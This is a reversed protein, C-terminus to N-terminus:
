KPLLGYLKLVDYRSIIGVLKGQEDVIPIPNVKHHDKFTRVVEEITINQSVVLPDRNMVDQVRLTKLRQSQATIEPDQEVIGVKMLLKQLASINREEEKEIMDYETLIGIVKNQEDIVPVGNFGNKSIVEYADLLPMDPKVAIVNKEMIDAVTLAQM